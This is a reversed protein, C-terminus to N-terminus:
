PFVPAEFNGVRSQVVHQVFIGPVHVADPDIEGVDVIYQSECITVGGAMAAPVNFNRSALRFALNGLRDARYSKVFAFDTALAIELVYETGGFIRVDKPSLWATVQGNGDYRAPFRGTALDTGASTPTYFAPIGAGAARMREALTGQPVLELEVQGSDFLTFFERNSPFSGTFKRIRGERVLRGVGTNDIGANNSVIHLDRRDLACLADCLMVPVGTLGFGGIAISAGDRVVSLMELVDPRVKNIV